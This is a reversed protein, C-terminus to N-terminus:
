PLWPCKMESGSEDVGLYVRATTHIDFGLRLIVHLTSLGISVDLVRSQSHAIWGSTAARNAINQNSWLDSM